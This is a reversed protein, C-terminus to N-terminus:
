ATTSALLNLFQDGVADISFASTSKIAAQSWRYHEDPRNLIHRLVDALVKDPTPDRHSFQFGNEQDQLFNEFVELKSVVPICGCAMAEVPAIGFTEGLEALSPYIFILHSQYLDRLAEIDYVPGSWKVPLEESLAILKQHYAEGGGGHSSKWSGAITLELQPFEQHIHKFSELLLHVGKEPHLRGVFLLGQRSTQTPRFTHSEYPNPIISIKSTLYPSQNQLRSAVQTNPCVFSDCGRYLAYQYKPMRNVSVILKGARSALYPTLAPLWFDNLITVDAAPIKRATTLAYYFDKILNVPLSSAQDFGGTRLITVEKEQSSAPQNQYSRAIITVQNGAQTFHHALQLWARSMGGGRVAPVPFNPGTCINIKM